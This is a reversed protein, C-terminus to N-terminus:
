LPVAETLVRERIRQRLGKETVVDVDRDLLQQLEMLLGGLDFLSRGPEMEVLFDVDSDADAERRAVSGFIRVNYAGHKAASRLIEERKAQLLDYVNM